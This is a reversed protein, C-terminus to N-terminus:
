IHILSLYQGTVSVQDLLNQNPLLVIRNSKISGINKKFSIYGVFSVSLISNEEYELPVQFAGDEDTIIQVLVKDESDLIDVLAHPLPKLNEGTVTFQRFQSYGISSILLFTISVVINRLLRFGVYNKCQHVM